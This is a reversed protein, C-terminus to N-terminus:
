EILRRRGPVIKAQAWLMRLEAETAEEWGKPIPALRRRDGASEFALWGGTMEPSIKVRPGSDALGRRRTSKRREIPVPKKGGPLSARRDPEARRDVWAPAVVWVM